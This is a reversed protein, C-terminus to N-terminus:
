YESVEESKIDVEYDALSMTTNKDRVSIIFVDDSVKEEVYYYVNNDNEGWQNRALNLAKEENGEKGSDSSPNNGAGVDNELSSTNKENDINENNQEDDSTTNTINNESNETTNEISNTEDNESVNANSDITNEEIFDGIINKFDKIKIGVIIGVILVILITAIIVVKKNVM